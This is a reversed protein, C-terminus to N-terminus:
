LVCCRKYNGIQATRHNGETQETGSAGLEAHLSVKDGARKKIGLNGSIRYEALIINLGLGEVEM